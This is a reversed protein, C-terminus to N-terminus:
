SAPCTQHYPIQDGFIQRWEDATLNRQAVKCAHRVWSDVSTDWRLVTGTGTAMILTHSGDLFVAAAPVDVRGPAISERAAGTRGDWLRVRGDFGTTVVLAGDSSFDVRLVSQQHQRTPKTSWEGSDLDLIGFDGEESGVALLRGDPSADAHTVSLGFDASRLVRGSAVDVLVYRTGDVFAVVRGRGAWVLEHLDGDVRVRPGVPELTEADVQYVFGGREGVVLRGGDPTYALAEIPGQGVEKEVVLRSRRWDWVRIWRDGPVALREADPPRWVGWNQYTGVLPRLWSGPFVDLVDIRDARELAGGTVSSFAVAEGDPAPVVLAGLDKHVPPVVQQVLRRDGRADWASLRGDATLTYVTAGDPSFDLDKVEESLGEIRERRPGRVEWLTVTREESGGALVTGDPSFALHETFGTPSPLRRQVKLGVTELILVQEGGIALTRGDPALELPGLLDESGRGVLVDIGTSALRRGSAVDYVEIATGKVNVYLRQGDNSLQLDWVPMPIARILTTGRWLHVAAAGRSLMAAALVGAKVSAQVGWMEDGAPPITKRTDSAPDVLQLQGKWATALRGDPLFAVSEAGVELSDVERLTEPDRISLANDLTIALDGRSGVTLDTAQKTATSAVLTPWRTVASLLAARTDSADRLRVAEVGALAAVMPDQSEHAVAAAAQAQAMVAAEAARDQQRVGFVAAVGAVLALTTLGAVLGRTTMAQHRRRQAAVEERSVEEANLRESADLFASETPTIATASRRRWDLARSLRVGRYLESDPRGLLDWSDAAGALHRVIRQGELDDELWGKLRPWARALSEHALAAVGDDVTVLRARVLVEVLDQGQGPALQRAPVWNRVPEGDAAMSVLRLLLDHLTAREADPLGQYVLEASLAVAGRIGGSARYGDVTLTRGERAEWTQHLAHAMLPLAGPEETVEAVLLDVLGSEVVLGAEAAPGNIALQLAAEEMPGLLYLGREVLRALAAHASVRGLRDARITLILRGRRAHEVLAAFLEEREGEGCAAVVEELQDVVLTDEATAVSASRVAGVPEPCVGVLEVRGGDRHLAAMVGARILSSKGSGSPGVVVLVGTQELRRLCEVTEAERGFFFEGEDVNFPRLGPYPNQALTEPLTTAAVLSADQRLVAQELQTLEAGPDLGLEDALRRRAQRLTRLAAAQDGSLYEALALLAWRRERLPEQAVKARAEPVTEAHLGIRLSAELVAEEAERRMAGLREAEFRGPEWDQLEALPRGRWLALAERLAHVARDANGQRLFQHGRDVLREFRVADVGDGGLALRYGHPTTAVAASGAAKRIRLISSPILKSWSAPPSEGWLAEALQETNLAEGRVAVLAELVVQDRPSLAARDDVLLPGLVSISM